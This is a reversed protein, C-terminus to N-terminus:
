TPSSFTTAISADKLREIVLIYNTAFIIHPNRLSPTIQMEIKYYTSWRLMLTDCFSPGSDNSNWWMMIPGIYVVGKAMTKGNHHYINLLLFFLILNHLVQM